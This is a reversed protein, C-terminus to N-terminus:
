DSDFFLRVDLDGTLASQVSSLQLADVECGNKFVHFYIELKGMAGPISRNTLLRWEVPKVGDPAGGRAGGSVHRRHPPGQQRRFYRRQADVYL